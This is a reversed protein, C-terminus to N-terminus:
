EPFHTGHNAKLVLTYESRGRSCVHVSGRECIGCVREGGAAEGGRSEGPVRSAM